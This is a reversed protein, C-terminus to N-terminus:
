NADRHTWRYIDRLVGVEAGHHTLERHAHLALDFYSHNRYPGWSDGLVEWIRQDGRESIGLRFNAISVDVLGAAEEATGVFTLADLGTGSTGFARSSYSDMAAVAIHWLRWAITTVPAPDPEDEPFDAAFGHETARVTWCGPAPEWLYEVDDLGVLRAM